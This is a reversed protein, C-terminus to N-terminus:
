QAEGFSANASVLTTIEALIQDYSMSSKQIINHVGGELKEQELSTLDAATVVIIPVDAYDSSNRFRELFEFGDMIPMMLDLLIAAPPSSMQELANLGEQGNATEVVQFESSRLLRRFYTRSNEDDEIILIPGEAQKGTFRRLAAVLKDKDVPKSVYDNAGLAFGQKQEDLISAMVVPIDMTSSDAKLTRLVSWGDMEPMLIDLTIVAPQEKRALEIGTKGDAAVTVSFGASELHHQMLDRVVPDDDIVLVTNASSRIAISREASARSVTSAETGIKGAEDGVETEAPILSKFTSGKGLESTVNLDGGLTMALQRSIALGLGTGGYKRTTSSDAQTFSSFIKETQEATMGIGTDVVEIAIFDRDDVRETSANVGVTGSQTFKCANSILNFVIQRVRTQDSRISGVDGAINVHLTNQNKEALNQSTSVVDNILDSIAFEEIYFDIKGAEIKSVDLVDNILSLLHNGATHIRELPEQYEDLEDEEAEEKLLAALGIVANLPTRLEHSMNAIFLSKAQSAKNAEDRAIALNDVLTGLEEERKKNESIDNFVVIRSGDGLKTDLLSFSRGDSIRLEREVSTGESRRNMNRAARARELVSDYPPFMGRARAQRIMELFPAGKKLNDVFPGWLNKYALNAHVLTNSDDWLAIPEPMQEIALLLRDQDNELREQAVKEEHIDESLGFLRLTKGTEENRKAFARDHVWRYEGYKPNHRRYMEDFKEIDGKIYAQFRELYEAKDDPHVQELSETTNIGEGDIADDLFEFEIKKTEADWEYVTFGFGKALFEIRELQAALAERVKKSESVDEINGYVKLTSGSAEDRVAVAKDRMWTYESTEPNLIRYEIDFHDPDGKLFSIFSTKYFEVDDPHITAIFEETDTAPGDGAAAMSQEGASVDFSNTTADFEYIVALSAANAYREESQRLAEEREKAETVDRILLLSGGNALQKSTISVWVKNMLSLELDKSERNIATAILDLAKDRDQGASIVGKDYLLQAFEKVSSGLRLADGLNEEFLKNHNIFALKANENFLLITDGAEQIAEYLNAQESEIKEKAFVEEHVDEMFGLLKIAKGSEDRVARGKNRTWRWEGPRIQSRYQSVFIETEGKLHAIMAEKYSPFDDPHVLSRIKKADGGAKLVLNDDVRDGEMTFHDTAADWEYYNFLNANQFIGRMAESKDLSEKLALERKKEETINRVITVVGGSPLPSDTAESYTDSGPNYFQRPQGTRAKFGAVRNEILDTREPEDLVGQMNMIMAAFAKYAIGAELKQGREMFSKHMTENWLVLRDNKDWIVVPDSLQNIADFMIEKSATEADQM